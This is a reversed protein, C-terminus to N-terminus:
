TGHNGDHRHKVANRHEKWDMHQSPTAQCRRGVDTVEAIDPCLGFWM